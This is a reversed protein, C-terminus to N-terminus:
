QGRGSDKHSQPAGHSPSAGHEQAPEQVNPRPNSPPLSHIEASQYYGKPYYQHPNSEQYAPRTTHAPAPRTEAEARSTTVHAQELTKSSAESSQHTAPPSYSTTPATSYTSRAPPTQSHAQSAAPQSVSRPTSAQPQYTATAPTRANRTPVAPHQATSTALQPHQIVPHRDDVKQAVMATPRAAPAAKLQPRYLVPTAKSVSQNHAVQTGAPVDRIPVKQIQTHTAAAVRDVKIGQNVITNNNVVYNNIITTHNYIRTVETPALCRHGLDHNDFDHLAVFAFHEPRLGFDFSVAVHVGNFSWGVGAVFESRPPLPAWGCNDGQSRWIVWAPGWVRDPTWVWGCRPHLYWRGYHFPAWGWSYTSQWYWGADSYVWYGSDCYPRWARNIVVVRPQWCWGYGNLQVWTGYPSLDDYFYNVEPPPSSVYVPPPTEVAAPTPPAPAVEPPPASVPQPAVASPNASPYLRQDYNYAQGQAQLDRDRNLMDTIATSSLGIDKLYVIQDASLNFPATSRQIYAVIVDETTGAESLRIVENAGPSFNAPVAPAPPAQGPVTSPEPTSPQPFAQVIPLVVAGFVAIWNRTKM